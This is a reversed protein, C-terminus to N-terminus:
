RKLTVVSNMGDTDNRYTIAYNVESSMKIYELIQSLPKNEFTGTFRYTRIIDDEVEFKVNYFRSLGALVEVMPTNRFVLRGWMWDTDRDINTDVVQLLGTATSYIAKTSPLLVASVAEDEVDVRVSGSVLSTQISGEGEVARMNFETGLVRVSYKQEPTTVIFPREEDRTVKFYAEGTLIVKREGGVDYSPYTVSSSSNLHVQTGDPLEIRTHSNDNSSVTIMSPVSVPSGHHRLLFSGIGAVGVILSAAVLTRQLRRRWVKRRIRGEVKNLASNVDRKEIDCLTKHTHYMRMIRSLAQENERSAGVWREVSRKESETIQGAVYRLLRSEDPIDTYAIKNSAM